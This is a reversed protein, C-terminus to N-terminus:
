RLSIGHPSCVKTRILSDPQKSTAEAAMIWNFHCGLDLAAVDQKMRSRGSRINWGVRLESRALVNNDAIPKLDKFSDCVTPPQSNKKPSFDLRVYAARCKCAFLSMCLCTASVLVLSSPVGVDEYRLLWARVRRVRYMPLPFFPVVTIPLSFGTPFHPFLTQM